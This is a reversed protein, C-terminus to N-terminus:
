IERRFAQGQIAKIWWTMAISVVRPTLIGTKRDEERSKCSTIFRIVLSTVALLKNLPNYCEPVIVDLLSSSPKSTAMCMAKMGEQHIEHDVHNSSSSWVFWTEASECVM